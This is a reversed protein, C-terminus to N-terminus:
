WLTWAVMSLYGLLMGWWILRLIGPAGEDYSWKYMGALALLGLGILWAPRNFAMLLRLTGLWIGVATLVFFLEQLSFRMPTGTGPLHRPEPEPEPDFLIPSPPRTFSETDPPVIKIEDEDPDYPAPDIRFEPM